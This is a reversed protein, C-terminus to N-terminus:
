MDTAIKKFSKIDLKEWDPIEYRNDNSDKILVRNGYVTKIDSQRNKIDFSRIGRDTEVTWKLVGYKEDRDIIRIIKPILYYERLADEVAKRSEPMITDLNRIVAIEKGDSDLLTIYRKPGSIPVLSRAEVEEFKRGDFFELNLTYAVGRTIRVEDSDIYQRAM